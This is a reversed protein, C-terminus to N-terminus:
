AQKAKIAAQSEDHLRQVIADVEPDMPCSKLTDYDYSVFIQDATLVVAQQKVSYVVGEQVCKTRKDNIERLATGVICTDPYTVPRRYRLNAGALIFSKGKGQVMNAQQEPPLQSSLVSLFKMRGSELWRLYQVNNVHRFSDCDGWCVPQTWLSPVDYGMEALRLKAEVVGKRELAENQAIAQIVNPDTAGLGQLEERYANVVSTKSSPLSSHFTRANSVTQHPVRSVATAAPRGLANILTQKGLLTSPTHKLITPFPM